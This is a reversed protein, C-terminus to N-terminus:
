AKECWDEKLIGYLEIDEYKESKFIHQKQRGEHKMGLKEM